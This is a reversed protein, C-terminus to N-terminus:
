PPVISRKGAGLGHAVDGLMSHGVGNGGGWRVAGQSQVAGEGGRALLRSVIGVAGVRLHGRGDEPRTHRQVM